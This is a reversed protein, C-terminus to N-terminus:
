LRMVASPAAAPAGALSLLRGAAPEAALARFDLFRRQSTVFMKGGAICPMTPRSVPVKRSAVVRGGPGLGDIRGAGVVAVWLVGEADLAAGDPKEGEPYRILERPAGIQGTPSLPYARVTGDPSDCFYLTGGDPTATIANPIRVGDLLRLFAGGPLRCHLAGVPAGSGHKEMSGFWLRGAADAKGDNLRLGETGSLPNGLWETVRGEPDFAWLGDELGVVLRADEALVVFGPQSPMAFERQPDTAPDAPCHGFLRQGQIDIWWLVGRAADWLPSEGTLALRPDVVCTGGESGNM